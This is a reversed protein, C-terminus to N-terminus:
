HYAPTGQFAKKNQLYTLPLLARQQPLLPLHLPPVKSALENASFTVLKDPPIEGGLVRRRLDPNKEDRLNFILSRYKGKYDKGVEGTSCLDFLKTHISANLSPSKKIALDLDM